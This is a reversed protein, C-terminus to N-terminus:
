NYVMRASNRATGSSTAEELVTRRSTVPGDSAFHALSTLAEDARNSGEIVLSRVTACVLNRAGVMVRLVAFEAIVM